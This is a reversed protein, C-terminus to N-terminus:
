LRKMQRALYDTIKSNFEPDTILDEQIGAIPPSSQLTGAKKIIRLQARQRKQESPSIGHIRQLAVTTFWGYSWGCQKREALLDHILKLLDPWPAISLFQATIKDDPPHPHPSSGLKASYGQMYRKAAAVEDAGFNKIDARAMRDFISDSITDISARAYAREKNPPPGAFPGGMDEFLAEPPEPVSGPHGELLAVGPGRLPSGIPVPQLCQLMYASASVATGLRVTIINRQALSDIARQVASRGCGTAVSLDRASARVAWLPAKARVALALLVRLEGEKLTPALETISRLAESHHPGIATEM